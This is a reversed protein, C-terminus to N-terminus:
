LRSELFSLLREGDDVQEEVRITGTLLYLVAIPIGVGTMCLLWFYFWSGMFQYRSITAM